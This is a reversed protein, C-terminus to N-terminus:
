NLNNPSNFWHEEPIITLVTLIFSPIKEVMFVIVGLQEDFLLFSDGHSFGTINEGVTNMHEIIRNKEEDGIELQQSFRLIWQNGEMSFRFM